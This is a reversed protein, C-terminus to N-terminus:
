LVKLLIPLLDIALEALAILIAATKIKTGAEAEIEDTTKAMFAIREEWSMSSLLQNYFEVKEEPRGNAIEFITKLYKLGMGVLLPAHKKAWESLEDYQEQSILGEELSARLRDNLTM